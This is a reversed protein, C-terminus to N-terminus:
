GAIFVQNTAWSIWIHRGMLWDAGLLMDISRLAHFPSVVLAAPAAPLNGVQLTFDQIRATTSGKGFGRVQDPGGAALGLRIMAPQMLTSNSAGTDLEATLAQGAVRVPLVLINRIPRGAALMVRKGAWPLFDGSCASVGYLKLSDAAPDLDLDFLSLYDQGLLGSVPHGAVSDPVPGVVVSHDAAVTHRRLAIGGISLSAPDGLRQQDRGGAGLMDTSIWEDRAIKLRAAAAVGVVTREAGTDLVFDTTVGNLTVPVLMLGGVRTLKLTVQLDVRCALAPGTLLLLGVLGPIV